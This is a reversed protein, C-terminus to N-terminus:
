GALHRGRVLHRGEAGYAGGERGRDDRVVVRQWEVLGVGQLHQLLPGLLHEVVRALAEQGVVERVLQGEPTSAAAAPAARAALARPEGRVVPLAPASPALGEELVAATIAALDEAAVGRELDVNSRVCTLARELAVDAATAEGGLAVELDVKLPVAVFEGVNLHVRIRHGLVEVLVMRRQELLQGGAALPGEARRGRGRGGQGRV